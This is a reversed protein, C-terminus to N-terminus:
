SVKLYDREEEKGGPLKPNRKRGEQCDILDGISRMENGV